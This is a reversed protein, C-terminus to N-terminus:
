ISVNNRNERNNNRVLIVFIGLAALVSGLGVYQIPFSSHGGTKPLVKENVQDDSIQDILISGDPIIPDIITSPIYSNSFTIGAKSSMTDALVTEYCSFSTLWAFMFVMLFLGRKIM